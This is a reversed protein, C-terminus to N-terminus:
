YNSLLENVRPYNDGVRLEAMVKLPGKNQTYQRKNLNIVKHTFCFNLFSFIESNHKESICSKKKRKHFWWPLLTLLLKTNSCLFMLYMKPNWMKKSVFYRPLILNVTFLQPRIQLKSNQFTVHLNDSLCVMVTLHTLKRKACSDKLCFM